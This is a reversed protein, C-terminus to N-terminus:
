GPAGAGRPEREAGGEGPAQAEGLLAMESLAAGEAKANGERPLLLSLAAPEPRPPLRLPEGLPM